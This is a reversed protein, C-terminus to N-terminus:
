HRAKSRQRSREHIADAMSVIDSKMVLREWWEPPTTVVGYYAGAIKGYIAGTTEADDGLNVAKLAGRRFDHSNHFAWLAAELSDM